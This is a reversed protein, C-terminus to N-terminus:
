DAAPLSALASGVAFSVTAPDESSSLAFRRIDRIREYAIHAARSGGGAEKAAASVTMAEAQELMTEYRARASALGMQRALESRLRNDADGKAAIADLLETTEVLRSEALAIARGPSGRALGIIAALEGEDAKPLWKRLITKM